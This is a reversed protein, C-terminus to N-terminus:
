YCSSIPLAICPVLLKYPQKGDWEGGIHLYEWQQQQMLGSCTGLSVGAAITIYSYTSAGKKRYFKLSHLIVYSHVNTKKLLKQLSTFCKKYAQKM